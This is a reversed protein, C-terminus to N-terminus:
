GYSAVMSKRSVGVVSFSSMNCDCLGCGFTVVVVSISLNMFSLSIVSRSNNERTMDKWQRRGTGGTRSVAAVRSIVM